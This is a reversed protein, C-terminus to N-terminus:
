AHFEELKMSQLGVIARAFEDHIFDALEKDGRFHEVLYAVRRQSASRLQEVILDLESPSDVRTQVAAAYYFDVLHMSILRYATWRLMKAVYAAQM